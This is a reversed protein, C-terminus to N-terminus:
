APSHSSILGGTCDQREKAEPVGGRKEEGGFKEQFTPRRGTAAEDGGM